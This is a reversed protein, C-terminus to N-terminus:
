PRLFDFCPINRLAGFILVIILLLIYVLRPIKNLLNENKNTIYIYCYYVYYFMFFPLLCFVLQNYMFASKFDLKIISFICRTIGCGPCYLHTFYKIPCSISLEFKSNLFYYGFLLILLGVVQSIVKRIRKSM